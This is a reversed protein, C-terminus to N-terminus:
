RGARGEHARIGHWVTSHDRGFWAGIQPLTLGRKYLASFAEQRPWAVARCRERTLLDDATLGHKGAVHRLLRRVNIPARVPEQSIVPRPEVAHLVFAVEISTVGHEEACEGLHLYDNRRARYAEAAQQVREAYAPSVVHGGEAAARPLGRM